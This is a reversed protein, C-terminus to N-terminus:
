KFIYCRSWLFISNAMIASLPYCCIGLLLVIAMNKCKWIDSNIESRSSSNYYKNWKQGNCNFYVKKKQEKKLTGGGQPPALSTHIYLPRGKHLHGHSRANWSPWPSPGMTIITIIPKVIKRKGDDSFEDLIPEAIKKGGDTRPFTLRNNSNNYNHNRCKEPMRM